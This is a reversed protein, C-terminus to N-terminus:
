DVWPRAQKVVLKGQADYKFELDMAFKKDDRPRGYLPRFHQQVRDMARRLEEVQAASLVSKQGPQLLTSHRIYQSEWEGHEGLQAILLEDPTANPDPNTVLSEGAQVNVYVGPWNPDFLNKTVAVGNAQEDDYNRTLLVGMYTKLHDMRHFTREEYARFNWLSAWVRKVARALSDGPRTPRYTYSDYLGAGNFGPLDESNTSSRARIPVAGGSDQFFDAEARTLAAALGPPLPTDVIRRQFEALRKERVAPDNRFAEDMMAEAHQYLTKGDSGVASMFDDYFSFPLGLGEPPTNIPLVQRLEGLNAAKAGFATHDGYRMSQLRKPTKVSLTSTVVPPSPPRVSELWDSAEEPTAVRIDPGEPKVEFRVVKNLHPAVRADLEARGTALLAEHTEGTPHYALKENAEPMHDAILTYAKAVLRTPVPDAPWFEVSYLGQKGPAPSYNDHAVLTGALNKRGDRIYTDANFQALSRADGLGRNAFDYHYSFNKTNIFYLKEDPTGLDTILFKVGKSGPAGPLDDGRALAEFEARTDVRTAGIEPTLRAVGYSFSAARQAAVNPILKGPHSVRFRVDDVDDRPDFADL